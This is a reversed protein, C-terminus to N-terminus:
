LSDFKLLYIVDSVFINFTRFYIELFIISVFKNILYLLKYHNRNIYLLNIVENTKQPSEYYYLSKYNYSGKILVNININLYHSTIALEQDGAYFEPQKM